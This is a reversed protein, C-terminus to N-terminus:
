LLAFTGNPDMSSFDIKLWCLIDNICYLLVFDLRIWYKTENIYKNIYKNILKGNSLPSGILHM